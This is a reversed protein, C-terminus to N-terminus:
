RYSCNARLTADAIHQRIPVCNFSAGSVTKQPGLRDDYAKCRYGGDESPELKACPDDLAGCCEGCRTCLSEFTSDKEM